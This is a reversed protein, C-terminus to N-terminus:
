DFREEFDHEVFYSIELSRTKSLISFETTKYLSYPERSDIVKKKHFLFNNRFQGFCKKATLSDRASESLDIFRSRNFGSM